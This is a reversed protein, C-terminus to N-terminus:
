LAEFKLTEVMLPLFAFIELEELPCISLRPQIPSLM